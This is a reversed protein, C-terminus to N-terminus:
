EASNYQVINKLHTYAELDMADFVIGMGDEEVRAVKAHILLEPADTGGSLIIKVMCEMGLSVKKETKVFLGKLSLNTSNGTIDTESDSYILMIRTSFPVRTYHRRGINEIESM